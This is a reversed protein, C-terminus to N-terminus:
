CLGGVGLEGGWGAPFRCSSSSSQEEWGSRESGSVVALSLPLPNGLGWEQGRQGEMLLPQLNGPFLSLLIQQIEEKAHGARLMLLVLFLQQALAACSGAGIGQVM